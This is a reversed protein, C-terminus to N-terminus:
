SRPPRAEQIARLFREPAGLTLSYGGFDFEAGARIRQEGAIVRAGASGIQVVHRVERKRFVLVGHCHSEDLATFQALFFERGAGAGVCM